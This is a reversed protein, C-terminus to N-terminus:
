RKKKGQRCRKRGTTVKKGSWGGGPNAIIAIINVSIDHSFDSDDRKSSNWRGLTTVSPM